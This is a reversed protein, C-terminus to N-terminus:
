FLHEDVIKSGYEAQHVRVINNEPIGINQIMNQVADLDETRCLCHINPGADVTFYCEIGEKEKQKVGEEVMKYTQFFNNRTNVVAKIVKLTNPKWYFLPPESTMMVSHMYLCSKESIEGVTTFDDNQIAKKIEVAQKQSENIKIQNFVSSHAAEQGIDSSVEKEGRDIVAIVAAINFENCPCIQEAYSTDHSYGKNWCVFGGHLSRSASGSGLRAYKSLEINDLNLNLADAASTALAAFASSSSALGAATPFKNQSVMKFNLTTSALKRLADVVKLIRKMQIENFPVIIEDTKLFGTDEDYHESFEITTHTILEIGSKATNISEKTMSVSDNTPINLHPPHDRSKGWYKILAINPHAFASSKGM